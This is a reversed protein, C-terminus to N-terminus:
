SVSWHKGNWHLILTGDTESNEACHSTCYSGVAWADTASDASVQSLLNGELDLPSGPTPSPVKVWATGNWHLVLTHWQFKTPNQYQGVAWADTPSEASVGYLLDPNGPNPDAAKAWATGNWHLITSKSASNTDHYGVAWADTPSDASLAFLNTFLNPGRPPSPAAVKSWAKGNWHEILNRYVQSSTLCKSTCYDGSAWADGAGTAVAGFLLGATNGPPGPNPSTVQTWATGNWHEILTGLAGGAALCGATCYYGVAWADTASAATVANLEDPFPNPSTVQSWATGDWHLILTREVEKGQLCHAACYYGVAWADTPSTATV